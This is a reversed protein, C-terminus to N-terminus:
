AKESEFDFISNIRNSVAPEYHKLVRDLGYCALSAAFPGVVIMRFGIPYFWTLGLFILGVIAFADAFRRSTKRLPTDRNTGEVYGMRQLGARSAIRVAESAHEIDRDKKMQKLGDVEDQDFNGTIRKGMVYAVYVYHALFGWSQPTVGRNCGHLSKRM